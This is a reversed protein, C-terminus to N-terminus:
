VVTFSKLVDRSYKEGGKFWTKDGSQVKVVYLKGNSVTASFLQHKGGEDGDATRTLLELEFYTKGKKTSQGSALLAASSVTGDEFGGESRSSGGWSNTGLMVAAGSEALFSEPTGYDEIKSKSTANVTVTVNNAVRFNDEWRADTGPYEREKSPAFKAPVLVAYGDGAFSYFGSTNSAGGFVNAGQGYAALSPKASMTLAGAAVLGLASRRTALEVKEESCKITMSKAVPAVARSAKLETTKCSSKSSLGRVFSSAATSAAM